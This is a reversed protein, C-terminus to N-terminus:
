RGTVPVATLRGVIRRVWPAVLTVTPFAVPWTTVCSRLWQWLFGQNIGQTIALVFGSVVAVMIASLLAGFLLPAFRNPISM